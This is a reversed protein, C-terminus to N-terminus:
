RTRVVRNLLSKFWTDMAAAKAVETRRNYLERDARAFRLGCDGGVLAENL